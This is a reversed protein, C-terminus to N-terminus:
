EQSLQIIARPHLNADLSRVTWTLSGLDRTPHLGSRFPDPQNPPAPCPSMIPQPTNLRTFDFARMRTLLNPIRERCHMSPDIYFVEEPLIPHLATGGYHRASLPLFSPHQVTRSSMPLVVAGTRSPLKGSESMM